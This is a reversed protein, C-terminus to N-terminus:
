ADASGQGFGQHIDALEWSFAKIPIVPWKSLYDLIGCAQQKGFYDMIGLLSRWLNKM